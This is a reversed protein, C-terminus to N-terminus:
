LLHLFVVLMLKHLRLVEFRVRFHEVLQGACESVLPLVENPNLVVLLHRLHFYLVSHSPSCRLDVLLQQHLLGEELLLSTRTEVM